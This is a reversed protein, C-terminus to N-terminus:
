SVCVSWTVAANTVYANQSRPLVLGKSLLMAARSTLIRAAALTLPQRLLRFTSM